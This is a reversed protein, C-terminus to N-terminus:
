STKPNAPNLTTSPKGVLGSQDPDFGLCGQVFGSRNQDSKKRSKVITSFFDPNLNILVQSPDRLIEYTSRSRLQDQRDRYFGTRIRILNQYKEYISVSSIGIRRFSIKETFYQFISIAHAEM